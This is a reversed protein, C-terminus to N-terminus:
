VSRRHKAPQELVGRPAATAKGFLQRASNPIDIQHQIEKIRASEIDNGQRNEGARPKRRSLESTRSTYAARTLLFLQDVTERMPCMVQRIGSVTKGWGFGQPHWFDQVRKRKQEWGLARVPNQRSLSPM